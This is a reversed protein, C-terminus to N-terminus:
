DGMFKLYLHVENLCRTAMRRVAAVLERDQETVARSEAYAWESLFRTMQIRNFVTDGYFDISMLVPHDLDDGPPLLNGLLGKPDGMYELEDGHEEVLAVNIGM